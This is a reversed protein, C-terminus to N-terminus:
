MTRGNIFDHALARYDTAGNSKKSYDFITQGFSPCEALSVNERIPTSLVRDPFYRCLKEVVEKALRRRGNFRTVVIWLDLEHNSSNEFDRITAVFYSLGRLSLYYGLVPILVEDAMSLGTFILQGSAPPCDILVFDQDKCSKNISQRLTNGRQVYEKLPGSVQDLQNGAPVLSFGNDIQQILTDITAGNLLVSDIGATALPDVGLSCSLHGQPDLDIVTVQKGSLALAHGLNVATTTKGVGGKQNIVAISRM